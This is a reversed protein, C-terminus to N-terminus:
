KSTLLYQVLDETTCTAPDSDAAGCLEKKFDDIAEKIDANTDGVVQTILDAAGEIAELVTEEITYVNGNEDKVPCPLCTIGDPNDCPENNINCYGETLAVTQYSQTRYILRYAEKDDCEPTQSNVTLKVSEYTTGDAFTINGFSNLSVGPVTCSNNVAYELACAEIDGNDGIGNNNLDDCVGPNLWTNINELTYALSVSSKATEVLGRYFCADKQIDTLDPKDCDVVIEGYLSSAQKLLHINSVSARTSLVEIFEEYQYDDFTIDTQTKLIDNVIDSISFGAKGVHAAALNMKGEEVTFGGGCTIDSSLKQIVYDYNREDLAKVVDYTCAESTSDDSLGISDYGGCSFLFIGTLLFSISKRLM